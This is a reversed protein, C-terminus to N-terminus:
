IAFVILCVGKIGDVFGSSPTASGIDSTPTDKHITATTIPQEVNEDIAENGAEHVLALHGVYLLFM